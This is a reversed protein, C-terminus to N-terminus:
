AQEWQDRLFAISKPVEVMKDGDVGCEFSCFYKYGIMKLGRFGDVFRTCNQGPLTRRPAAVGGALHVHRMYPGGCIFAGMQSTEETDMHYFDGMVSIGGDPGAEGNCDRAIAAGDAVQRLFFAEMRCLPELIIKTNHALAFQGMEPLFELCRQRIEFNNLKTQGNFAPVYIVGVCGLIGAAEIARKLDDIGPQRKSVDESCMDGNHSGWCIVSSLLGADDAMKRREEACGVVDGGWEVAECGWEKIKALKEPISDGPIIGLQSSLRLKTPCASSDSEAKVSGGVAAAAGLLAASSFFDRRNM